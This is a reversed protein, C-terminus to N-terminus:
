KIGNAYALMDNIVTQYTRLTIAIGSPNQNKVVADSFVNILTETEDLTYGFDFFKKEHLLSLMAYDDPLESLRGTLITDYFAPLLNYHAHASMFEFALGSEERSVVNIPVGFFGAACNVRYDKQKEDMKPLPAYGKDFTLDRLMNYKAGIDWTLFVARNEVFRNYIVSDALDNSYATCHITANGHGFIVEDLKEAITAMTNNDFGQVFSGDSQRVLFDEGMGWMWRALSADNIAMGYVRSSEDGTSETLTLINNLAEMTWKGDMVLNQVDTDVANDQYNALQNRNYVLGLFTQGDIYVDSSIFYLKSNAITFNTVQSENYWKEGPHISEIELINSLQGQIMMTAPGKTPHPVVLDYSTDGAQQMANMKAAVDNLDTGTFFLECNYREEFAMARSFHSEGIAEGANEIKWGKLYGASLITFDRDGFDATPIADLPNGGSTGDTPPTTGTENGKKKDVCSALLTVLMVSALLFVLLRLPLNLKKM